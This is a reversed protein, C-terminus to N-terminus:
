IYRYGNQGNQCYRAITRATLGVAEAALAASPFEGSPALVAKARPHSHRDKLHEGAKGVNRRGKADMDAMNDAYSGARLHEPNVCSPNDCTHMVVTAMPDGGSIAFSLRHALLTMNAVHMVGYGNRTKGATWNHCGTEADREIKECFRHIWEDAHKLVFVYNQGNPRRGTTPSKAARRARMYCASCLGKAVANLNPHNICAPRM